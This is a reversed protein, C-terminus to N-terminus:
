NQLLKKLIFCLEEIGDYINCSTDKKKIFQSTYVDDMFNVM